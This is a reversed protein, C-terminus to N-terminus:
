SSELYTEQARDESTKLDKFSPSWMGVLSRLLTANPKDNRNVEPLTMETMEGEPETETQVDGERKSNEPASMDETSTAKKPSAPGESRESPESRDSVSGQVASPTAVGRTEQYPELHEQLIALEAQLLSTQWESAQNRESMSQVLVELRAAETRQLERSSHLEHTFASAWREQAKAMETAQGETMAVKEESLRLKEQCVQQLECQLQGKEAEMQILIAGKEQDMTAATEDLRRQLSVREANLRAVENAKEELVRGIEEECQRRIQAKEEELTTTRLRVRDEFREELAIVRAQLVGTEEMATQWKDRLVAKERELDAVTEDKNQQLETLEAQLRRRLTLKENELNTLATAKDERLCMVEEHWHRLLAARDEQARKIILAKEEQTKALEGRVDLLQRRLDASEKAHQQQIQVKSNELITMQKQLEARSELMQEELHAAAKAHAEQWKVAEAAVEMNSRDMQAQELFSAVRQTSAQLLVRQETVERCYRVELEDRAEQMESFADTADSAIRQAERLQEELVSCQRQTAEQQRASVSSAEKLAKLEAMLSERATILAERDLQMEQLEKAMLAKMVASPESDVELNITAKNRVMKARRGFELSSKTEERDEIGPSCCVLLCTKSSGGFSEALLRTLMSDRYPVYQSGTSTLRQIVLALQSLSKNIEGAERRQCRPSRAGAGRPAAASPSQRSRPSDLLSRKLRESGALDVLHLRSRLTAGAERDSQVVNLTFVLHSRSSHHNMDTRATERRRCGEMLAAMAEEPSRAIWTIAEPCRFSLLGGCAERVEHVDVTTVTSGPALLDRVKENYVELVSVEIRWAAKRLGAFVGAIARPAVGRAPGTKAGIMSYTKGSGTQGYAIVAGNYGRCVADVIPSVATDYLEEQTAQTGFAHDCCVSWIGNAEADGMKGDGLFNMLGKDALPKLRV